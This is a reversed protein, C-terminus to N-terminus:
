SYMKYHFILVLIKWPFSGSTVNIAQILYTYNIYNLYVDNRILLLFTLMIIIIRYYNHVNISIYHFKKKNSILNPAMERPGVKFKLLSEIGVFKCSILKRKLYDFVLSSINSIYSWKKKVKVDFTNYFHSHSPLEHPLLTLHPAFLLCIVEFFDVSSTSTLTFQTWTLTTHSQVKMLLLSYRALFRFTWSLNLSFDFNSLTM